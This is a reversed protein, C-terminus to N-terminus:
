IFTQEGNLSRRAGDKHITPKTNNSVDAKGTAPADGRPSATADARDALRNSEAAGASTKDKE